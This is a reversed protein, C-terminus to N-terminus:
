GGMRELIRSVMSASLGSSRLEAAIAEDSVGQNKMERVKGLLEKATRRPDVDGSEGSNAVVRAHSVGRRTLEESVLLPIRNVLTAAATDQGNRKMLALLNDVIALARKSELAKVVSNDGSRISEGMEGLLEADEVGHLTSRECELANCYESPGIKLERLMKQAVGDRIDRDPFSHLISMDIYGSKRDVALLRVIGSGVLNLLSAAIAQRGRVDMPTDRYIVVFRSDRTIKTYELKGFEEMEELLSVIGRHDHQDTCNATSPDVIRVTQRSEDCLDERNENPKSANM